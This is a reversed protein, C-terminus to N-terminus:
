QRHKYIVKENFDEPLKVIGVIKKLKPSLNSRNTNEETLTELYNEILKSLSRGTHKAYLKAKKITSDKITLTLKSTM